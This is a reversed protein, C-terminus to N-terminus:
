QHRETDTTTIVFDADLVQRPEIDLDPVREKFLYWKQDEMRIDYDILDAATLSPMEVDTMEALDNGFKTRVALNMSGGVGWITCFLLWKQMFATMQGMELPFDPHEDQYQLINEIGKRLLAFTAELVRIDTFDMIHPLKRALQLVRMM